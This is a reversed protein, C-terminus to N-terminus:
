VIGLALWLGEFTDVAKGTATPRCGVGTPRGLASLYVTFMLDLSGGDGQYQLQPPEQHAQFVANMDHYWDWDEFKEAYTSFLEEGAQNFRVVGAGERGYIPKEWFDQLSEQADEFYFYTPPIISLVSATTTSDLRSGGGSASADGVAQTYLFALVAKNQLVDATIPPFKNLENQLLLDTLTQWPTDTHLGAPDNRQIGRDAIAWESPHHMFLNYVREQGQDTRVFVGQETFVLDDSYVFAAAQDGFQRQYAGCRLDFSLIDEQNEGFYPFSFYLKKDPHKSYRDVYDKLDQTHPILLDSNPCCCAFRDCLLRNGEFSEWFFSPTAANVELLKFSQPNFRLQEFDEQRVAIDLRMDAPPIHQLGLIQPYYDRPIDFEDVLDEEDLSALLRTADTLLEWTRRAFARIEFYFSEPLVLVDHMIYPSDPEGHGVTFDFLGAYNPNLINTLFDQRQPSRLIDDIQKEVDM